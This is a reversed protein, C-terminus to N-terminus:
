YFINYINIYNFKKIKRIQNMIKIIFSIFYRNKIIMWNLVRYNICLYLNDDLKKIFLILFDFSFIFLYIWRKILKEKIYKKFVKFKMELLNYISNFIFQINNMLSIHHNLHNRHPLLTQTKKKSFIDALNRYCELIESEKKSFDPNIHVFNIERELLFNLFVLFM